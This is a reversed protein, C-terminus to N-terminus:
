RYRPDLVLDNSQQLHQVPLQVPSTCVRVSPLCVNGRGHTTYVKDEVMSLPVIQRSLLALSASTISSSSDDFKM